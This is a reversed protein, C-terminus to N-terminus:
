DTFRSSFVSCWSQIICSIPSPWHLIVTPLSSNACSPVVPYCDTNSYVMSTYVPTVNQM